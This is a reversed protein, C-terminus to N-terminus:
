FDDIVKPPLIAICTRVANKFSCKCVSMHNYFPAPNVGLLKCFRTGNVYAEPFVVSSWM